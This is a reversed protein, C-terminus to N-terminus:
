DLTAEQRIEINHFTEEVKDKSTALLTAFGYLASPGIGDSQANLKRTNDVAEQNDISPFLVSPYLMLKRLAYGDKDIIDQRFEELLNGIKAIDGANSNFKIEQGQRAQAIFGCTLLVIVVAGTKKKNM